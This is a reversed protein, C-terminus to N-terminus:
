EAQQMIGPTVRHQLPVHFTPVHFVRGVRSTERRHDHEAMDGPQRFPRVLRYVRTRVELTKALPILFRPVHSRPFTRVHFVRGVRSTERRHDHEAMDGPQRFPRVLRYVRTRVELTKAPPILFRPFTSRPFTRIHSHPVRARGKLDAGSIHRRWCVDGASCVRGVGHM